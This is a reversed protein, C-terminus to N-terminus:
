ENVEEFHLAMMDTAKSWSGQLYIDAVTGNNEQTEAIVKKFLWDWWVTCRALAKRNSRSTVEEFENNINGKKNIHIDVLLSPKGDAFDFADFDFYRRQPSTRTEIYLRRQRVDIIYSWHLGGPPRLDSRDMAYLIDFAEDVDPNDSSNNILHCAHIFRTNRPPDLDGLDCLDVQKNGGFGQYPKLGKIEEDYEFNTMVPYQMQNGTYIKTKGDIFDICTHNDNADCLFFHWPWGDICISSLSNIVEAVTSFNDLVYQMWLTMFLCNKSNDDPLIGGELSMEQIYLGAENYGGDIFNKGLSSFTISGHLSTWNLSPKENKVGTFIEKFSIGTKQENRKNIFISGPQADATREDLNHGILFSGGKNLLFTSCSEWEISINNM